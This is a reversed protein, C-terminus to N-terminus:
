AAPAAKGATTFREAHAQRLLIAVPTVRERALLSAALSPM